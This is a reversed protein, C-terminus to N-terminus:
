KANETRTLSNILDVQNPYQRCLIEREGGEYDSPIFGPTMTTGVLSYKGGAKVRSGQWVGAPVVLQPLHGAMLDQGLTVVEGSGDPYLLLMELPDGQYFHYIEDGPLRHLASFSDQEDTLLYYIATSLPKAGGPLTEISRYTECFWGGEGPLPELHLLDKLTSVDM